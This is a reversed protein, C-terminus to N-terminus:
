DSLWNSALHIIVEVAKQLALTPIFEKRSHFLLGGAFINPTPIGQASLRAGDTGGRIATHKVELGAQIIAKEAYDKVKPYPELYTRMNEYSHEYNLDIALGKYRQEFTEKLSQLYVLRQKNKEVEFDRIIMTGSAKEASGSLTYLHYFGERKETHEPTEYEPIQAFFRCAIDLANIMTDKAYGPHVSLGNFTFE